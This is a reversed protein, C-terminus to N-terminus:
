HREPRTGGAGTGALPNELVHQQVSQQQVSFAVQTGDPSWAPWIPGGSSGPLELGQLDTSAGSEVDLVRLRIQRGGSVEANGTGPYDAGAYLLHRGDASWALGQPSAAIDPIQRAAGTQRDYIWLRALITFAVYRGDPSTRINRIPDDPARWLRESAGTVPDGRYLGAEEFASEDPIGPDIGYYFYERWSPDWDMYSSWLDRPLPAVSWTLDALSLRLLIPRSQRDRSSLSLETGDPKWRINSIVQFAEEPPDLEIPRSGDLPLIVLTRRATAGGGSGGAFFAVHRGDPSYSPQQNTGTNAYPLMKPAAIVQAGSPNIAATYIDSVGEVKMYTIGNTTWNRMTVGDAQDVVLFPEGVARGGEVAVGWVSERGQRSSRFVIHRGDPSWLPNTDLAAHEDLPRLSSGDIALVYLDRAETSGDEFVIFRGDPSAKPSTVQAWQLARLQRFTGNELSVLGITVSKDHRQLQVVLARGQRLWDTVHVEGEVTEFLRRPEAGPTAVYIESVQQGGQGLGSRRVTSYAVERGDPSWVGALAAPAEPTNWNHNTLFTTAKSEFDYVAVNQGGVRGFLAFTVARRGDPSMQMLSATGGGDLEIEPLLRDRLATNSGQGASADLAALRAGATTTAEGQDAYDRLVRQYARRAEADGLREYCQGLRVLARAALSREAAFEDAVREYLAIAAKLDGVVEDLHIAEQLLSSAQRAEAGGNQAAIVSVGLAAVISAAVLRELLSRM